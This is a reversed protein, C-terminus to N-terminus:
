PPDKPALLTAWHTVEEPAFHDDAALWRGRAAVHDWTGVEFRMGNYNQICILVDLGRKPMQQDTRIWDSTVNM